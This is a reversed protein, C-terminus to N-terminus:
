HGGSFSRTAARARAADLRSLAPALDAGLADTQAVLQAMETSIRRLIVVVGALAILTLISIAVAAM